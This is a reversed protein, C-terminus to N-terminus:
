KLLVMKGVNEYDGTKLRYFYIGSALDSGDFSVTHGGADCMGNVLIAVEKGTINYVKLDVQSPKPLSYSIVTSPNFPNPYNRVLVYDDLPYAHEPVSATTTNEWWSVLNSFSACSLIDVDDDGDVDTAFVPWAGPYSANIDQGTWHIPFNGDNLWLKVRSAESAGVVDTHGDGNVDTSYVGLAHPFNSGVPLEEWQVPNGGDNRWWHIAGINYGACVVDM